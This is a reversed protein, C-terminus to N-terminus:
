SRSRVPVAHPAGGVGSVVGKSGAVTNVVSVITSTALANEVRVITARVVMVLRLTVVTVEVKVVLMMDTVMLVDVLVTVMLAKVEDVKVLKRKRSVVETVTTVTLPMKLMKVEVLMLNVRVSVVSEVVALRTLVMKKGTVVVDVEEEVDVEMLTETMVSPVVVVVDNMKLEMRVMVRSSALVVTVIVTNSASTVRVTLVTDTVPEVEIKSVNSGIVTLLVAVTLVVTCVFRVMVGMVTVLSADPVAWTVITSDVYVLM